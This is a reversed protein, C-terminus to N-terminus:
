PRTEIREIIKEHPRKWFDKILRDFMNVRYRFEESEFVAYRLETGFDAELKKMFEDIKDKDLADGALLLDLKGEEDQVFVGGLCLLKIKGYRKFDDLLEQKDINRFDLLLNALSDAFVYNKNLELGTEKKQKVKIKKGVKVEIDEVLTLENLFDIAILNKLEKKLDPMKVKAKKSLDVVSIQEDPHALFFRLLKVRNESGFIKGLEKLM